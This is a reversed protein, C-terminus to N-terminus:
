DDQRLRDFVSREAAPLAAAARAHGPVGADLLLRLKALRDGTALVQALAGGQGAHLIAQGVAQPLEWQAAIRASLIRAAARLAAGFDEDDPLAGAPVIQDALRLAVVLGLNQMLGALYAEFPDAGHGPALLSAAQACKESLSWLLPAAHRAIRGTGMGIVPRFAVRALLMRLGNQGLLLLAGEISRVPTAPRYYPSNVERIVEAVLVADQAVQRALGAASSGEDRLSRLLQPIVAPVRPVLEAAAQPDRALRALQDLILAGGPAVASAHPGALWHFFVSELAPQVESDQPTDAVAQRANAPAPADTRAGGFWRALWKKM